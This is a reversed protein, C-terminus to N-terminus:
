RQYPDTASLQGRLVPAGPTGVLFLSYHDGPALAPLALTKSSVAGCASVLTAKVPNIGRAVSAGQGVNDFLTPGSPSVSLQGGACQASLNYFRLEAKLGDETGGADTLVTFTLKGGERRPVLTNFTDPAVQLTGAPKGDIVIPFADNGKVIAYTSAVKEGSLTQVPGKAVQARMPAGGPNVVRVFSSGAPPRAAYLQAFIGEASAGGTGAATMACVLAMTRLMKM